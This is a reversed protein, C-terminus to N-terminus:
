WYLIITTLMTNDKIKEKSLNGIKYDLYNNYIISFM